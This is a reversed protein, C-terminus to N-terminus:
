KLNKHFKSIKANCKHSYILEIAITVILCTIYLVLQNQM